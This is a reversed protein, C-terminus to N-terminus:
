TCPAQDFFDVSLKPFFKRIIKQAELSSALFNLAKKRYQGNSYGFAKEAFVQLGKNNYVKIINNYDKESVLRQLYAKRNDYWENVNVKSNFDKLNEEIAKESNGKRMNAESFYSNIKNSVFLCSQIEIDKGLQEIIMTKIKDTDINEKKEKSFSQMFTEDLFLNEIEAVDTTFINEGSLKEIQTEERFDRDVIGYAESLKNPIKNYARTYAIVDKCTHVPIITYYPFIIEYIKTDLSNAKDGECFLIKKKSGLIEMLLPEPIVNELIPSVEWRNPYIFKKMWFKLARRSSAFKLDHTLYIFTCDSRYKELRDWLKNVISEHLYGEPEDVIIRSNTPALSVRGAFYLIVREGDSMKYAEYSNGEEPKIFLTADANFNLTRPDMLDNWIEIVKDLRSCLQDSNSTEKKKLM